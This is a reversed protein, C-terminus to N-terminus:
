LFPKDPPPGYKSEVPKEGEVQSGRPVVTASTRPAPTEDDRMTIPEPEAPAYGWNVKAREIAEDRKEVCAPKICYYDYTLVDPHMQIGKWGNHEGGRFMVRMGCAVCTRIEDNAGKPVPTKPKGRRLHRAGQVIEEVVVSAVEYTRGTLHDIVFSALQYGRPPPLAGIGGAREAFSDARFLVEGEGRTGHVTAKLTDARSSDTDLVLTGPVWGGSLSPVLVDFRKKSM